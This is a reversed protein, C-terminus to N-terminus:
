VCKFFIPKPTTVKTNCANHTCQHKSCPATQVYFFILTVHKKLAKNICLNLPPYTLSFARNSLFRSNTPLCFNHNLHKTFFAFIISTHLTFNFQFASKRSLLVYLCKYLVLVLPIGRTKCRLKPFTRFM